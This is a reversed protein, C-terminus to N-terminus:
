LNTFKWCLIFCNKKSESICNNIFDSIELFLFKKRFFKIKKLTIKLFILTSNELYYNNEVKKSNKM